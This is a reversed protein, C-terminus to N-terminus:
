AARRTTALRQPDDAVRKKVEGEIWALDADLRQVLNSGDQLQCKWFREADRRGAQYRAWNLFVRLTEAGEAVEIAKSAQSNALRGDRAPDLRLGLALEEARTVLSDQLDRLVGPDPRALDPMTRRRCLPM